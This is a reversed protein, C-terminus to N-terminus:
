EPRSTRRVHVEQKNDLRRLATFYDSMNTVKGGGIGYFERENAFQRRRFWNPRLRGKGSTGIAGSDLNSLPSEKKALVKVVLGLLMM